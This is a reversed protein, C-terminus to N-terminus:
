RPGSESRKTVTFITSTAEGLVISRVEAGPLLVDPWARVVYAGPPLSLWMGHGLARVGECGAHESNVSICVRLEGHPEVCQQAALAARRLAASQAPPGRERLALPLEIRLGLDVRATCAGGGNPVACTLTAGRAPTTLVASTRAFAASSHLRYWWATRLLAIDNVLQQEVDVAGGIGGERAASACRQEPAGNGSDGSCAEAAAMDALWAITDAQGTELVVGAGKCSGARQALSVAWSCVDTAGGASGSATLVLESNFFAVAAAAAAPKEQPRRRQQEQQQQAEGDCGTRREDAGSATSATAHVLRSGGVASLSGDTNTLVATATSDGHLAIRVANWLRDPAVGETGTTGGEGHRDGKWARPVGGRKRLTGHVFLPTPLLARLPGQAASSRSSGEGAPVFQLMAHGCFAEAAVETTTGEAAVVAPLHPALAFPARAARWALQWTDKDGHLGALAAVVRSQTAGNLYVALSLAFRVHPRRKDLLVQGSDHEWGWDGGNEPLQLLQRLLRPRRPEFAFLDPWFVTGTGKYLKSGFAASTPDTVPVNDADLLLLEEFRSFAAAFPKMRWCGGGDACGLEVGHRALLEALGEALGEMRRGALTDSLTRELDRCECGLDSFATRWGAAVAGMVDETAGPGSGALEAEGWHWLECPLTAGRRRLASLAIWAQGLLEVGGAVLVVGMRRAGGLGNEAKEAGDGLGKGFKGELAAELEWAEGPAAGPAAWRAAWRAAERKFHGLLGRHERLLSEAAGGTATGSEPLPLWEFPVTARQERQPPSVGGHLSVHLLMQGSRLEDRQGSGHVLLRHRCLVSDGRTSGGACAQAAPVCEDTITGAAPTPAHAPHALRFCLTRTLARTELLLQVECAHDFLLSDRIPHNVVLGRTLGFLLLATFM